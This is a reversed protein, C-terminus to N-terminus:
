VGAQRTTDHICRATLRQDATILSFWNYSAFVIHRWCNAACIKLHFIFRKMEYCSKVIDMMNQGILTNQGVCMTHLLSFERSFRLFAATVSAECFDATGLEEGRHRCNLVQIGDFRRIKDYKQAFVNKKAM